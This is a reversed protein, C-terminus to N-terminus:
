LANEGVVKLDFYVRLLEHALPAIQFFALPGRDALGTSILSQAAVGDDDARANPVLVRAELDLKAWETQFVELTKQRGFPAETHKAIQRAEVHLVRELEVHPQDQFLFFNRLHLQAHIRRQGPSGPEFRHVRDRRACVAARVPM